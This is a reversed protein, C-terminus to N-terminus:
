YVTNKAKVAITFQLKEGKVSVKSYEKEDLNFVMVPTSFISEAKKKSDILIYEMKLTEQSLSSPRGLVIVGDNPPILTVWNKTGDKLIFKNKLVRKKFDVQYSVEIDILLGKSKTLSSYGFSISALLFSSLLLYRM